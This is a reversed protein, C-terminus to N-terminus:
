NPLNHHFVIPLLTCLVIATGGLSLLVGFVEIPQIIKIWVVEQIKELGKDGMIKCKNPKEKNFVGTAKVEHESLHVLLWFSIFCNSTFVHYIVKRPLSERQHIVVM